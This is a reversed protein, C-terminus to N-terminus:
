RPKQAREAPLITPGRCGSLPARARWTLRPKRAQRAPPHQGCEARRARNSGASRRSHRLRQPRPPRRPCRHHPRRLQRLCRHHLRSRGPHRRSRGASLRSSRGPPRRPRRRRNGSAPPRSGSAPPRRRHRRLPSRARGQRLSALQGTRLRGTRLRGTRPPSGPSLRDRTTRPRTLTRSSDLTKGTTRSAPGRIARDALAKRTATPRVVTARPATVRAATVRPVPSKVVTDRRAALARRHATMALRATMARPSTMGRPATNAIARAAGRSRSSRRIDRVRRRARASGPVPSRTLAPSPRLVGTLAAALPGPVARVRSGPPPGPDTRMVITARPPRIRLPRLGSRRPWSPRGSRWREGSGSRPSTTPLRPLRRRPPM